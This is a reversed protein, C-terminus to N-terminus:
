KVAGQKEGVVKSFYANLSQPSAAAATDAQSGTCGDDQDQDVSVPALWDDQWVKNGLKWSSKTAPSATNTDARLCRSPTAPGPPAAAPDNESPESGDAACATLLLVSGITALCRM